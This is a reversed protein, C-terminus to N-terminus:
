VFGSVHRSEGDRQRKLVLDPLRDASARGEGLVRKRRSWGNAPAILSLGTGIVRGNGDFQRALCDHWYRVLDKVSELRSITRNLGCNARL